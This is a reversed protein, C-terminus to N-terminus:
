DSNVWHSDDKTAKVGAEGFWQAVLDRAQELGLDAHLDGTRVREHMCRALREELDGLGSEPELHAVLAALADYPASVLYTHERGADGATPLYEYHERFVVGATNHAAVDMTLTLEYICDSATRHVRLLREIRAFGKLTPTVGVTTLWQAVVARNGQRPLHDGLHGGAVLATFCALLRDDMRGPVPTLDLRSEFQEALQTVAAMPATVAYAIDRSAYRGTPYAEVFRIEGTHPETWFELGLVLPPSGDRRAARLLEARRHSGTWTSRVGVESCWAALRHRHEGPPLHPGLEGRAILTALIAEARDDIHEAGPLGYRHEILDAVATFPEYGIALDYSYSTALDDPYALNPDTFTEQLRLGHITYDTDDGGLEYLDVALTRQFGNPEVTRFLPMWRQITQWRETDYWRRQYGVGARRCHTAVVDHNSVYQPQIDGHEAMAEIAAQLRDVATTTDSLAFRHGFYGSLAAVDAGAVRIAGIRGLRNPLARFEVAPPEDLVELVLLMDGRYLHRDDPQDSSHSPPM